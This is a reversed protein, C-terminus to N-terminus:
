PLRMSRKINRTSVPDVSCSIDSMIRYTIRWAKAQRRLARARARYTNGRQTAGAVHLREADLHLCLWSVFSEHAGGAIWEQELSEEIPFNHGM